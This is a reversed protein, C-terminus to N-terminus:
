GKLLASTRGPPAPWNKSQLRKQVVVGSKLDSMAEVQRQEWVREQWFRGHSAVGGLISETAWGNVNNPSLGRKLWTLFGM